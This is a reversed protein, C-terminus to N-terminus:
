QGRGTRRSAGPAYRADAVKSKAKRVNREPQINKASGADTALSSAIKDAIWRDISDSSWCVARSGIKISPPAKGEAVLAYWASRRLGVRSLVEPLRLLSVSVSM